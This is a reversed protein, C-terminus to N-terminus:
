APWGLCPSSANRRARVPMMSRRWIRWAWMTDMECRIMSSAIRAFKSSTSAIEVRRSARASSAFFITAVEGPPECTSAVNSGDILHSFVEPM